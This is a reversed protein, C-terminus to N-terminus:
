KAMEEDTLDKGCKECVYKYNTVCHGIDEDRVSDGDDWMEVLCPEEVASRFFRNHRCFPCLLKVEGEIRRLMEEKEKKDM